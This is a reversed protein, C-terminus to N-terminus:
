QSMAFKVPFHSAWGHQSSTSISPLSLSYHLSLPSLLSLGIWNWPKGKETTPSESSALQHTITFQGYSSSSALRKTSRSSHLLSPLLFQKSSAFPTIPRTAMSATKNRPWDDMFRECGPCLRKTANTYQAEGDKQQVILRCFVLIRINSRINVQLVHCVGKQQNKPVCCFESSISCQPVTPSNNPLDVGGNVTMNHVNYVFRINMETYAASELSINTEADCLVNVLRKDIRVYSINIEAKTCLLLWCHLLILIQSSTLSCILPMRGFCMCFLCLCYSFWRFIEQLVNTTNLVTNIRICLDHYM